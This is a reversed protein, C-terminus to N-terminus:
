CDIIICFITLNICVIAVFCTLLNRRVKIQMNRTSWSCLKDPRIGSLRIQTGFSLTHPRWIGYPPARGMNDIISFIIPCSFIIAFLVDPIRYMLVLYPLITGTCSLIFSLAAVETREAAVGALPPDKQPLSNRQPADAVRLWAQPHQV